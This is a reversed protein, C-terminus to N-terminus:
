LKRFIGHRVVATKRYDQEKSHCLGRGRIRGPPKTKMQEDVVITGRNM